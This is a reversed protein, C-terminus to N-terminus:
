SSVKGTSLLAVSSGDVDFEETISENYGDHLAARSVTM